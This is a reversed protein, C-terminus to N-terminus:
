VRSNRTRVLKANAAAELAKQKFAEETAPASATVPFTHPVEAGRREVDVLREPMFGEKCFPRNSLRGTRSWRFLGVCPSVIVNQPPDVAEDVQRFNSRMQPGVVAVDPPGRNIRLQQDPHQKDAVAEANTGLPPQALLNV